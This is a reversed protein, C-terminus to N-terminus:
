RRQMQAYKYFISRQYLNYTSLIDKIIETTEAIKFYKFIRFASLWFYFVALIM